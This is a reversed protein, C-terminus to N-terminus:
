LPMDGDCLEIDLFANRKFFKLETDFILYRLEDSLEFSITGSYSYVGSGTWIKARKKDNFPTSFTSQMSVTMARDYNGNLLPVIKWNESSFNEPQSCANNRLQIKAYGSYGLLFSEYKNEESM